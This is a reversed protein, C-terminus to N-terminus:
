EDRCRDWRANDDPVIQYGRRTAWVQTLEAGLFFAQATYYIWVLAVIVSGAAGYASGVEATRIYYGVALKGVTFLLATAVGGAAAVRWHIRVDPLWKLICAVALAIVAFSGAFELGAVIPGALPVADNAVRGVTATLASLLFSALVIAGAFAIMSIALLRGILTDRWTTSRAFQIGWIHNLTRRLQGFLASASVAAVGLALWAAWPAHRKGGISNMVVKAVAAVESGFERSIAAAIQSRSEAEDLFLGAVFVLSFLLPALGLISHFALAAGWLLCDDQWWQKVVTLWFNTTKAPM